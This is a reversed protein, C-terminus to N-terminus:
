QWIVDRMKEILDNKAGLEDFVVAWRERCLGFVGFGYKSMINAAYATDPVIAVSDDRFDVGLDDHFVGTIYLNPADPNRKVTYPYSLTRKWDAYRQARERSRFYGSPKLDESYFPHLDKGDSGKGELLQIRQQEAIEQEHPRLAERVLSGGQLGTRLERVNSLMQDISMSM